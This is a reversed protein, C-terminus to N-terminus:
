LKYFQLHGQWSDARGASCRVRAKGSDSSAELHTDPLATGGRDIGKGAAAASERYESAKASATRTFQHKEDFDKAKQAAAAGLTYGQELLKQVM